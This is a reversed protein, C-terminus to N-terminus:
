NHEFLNFISAIREKEIGFGTDIVEFRIFYDQKAEVKKIHNVSKSINNSLPFVNIEHLSTLNFPNSGTPVDVM